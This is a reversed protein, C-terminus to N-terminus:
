PFMSRIWDILTEELQAETPKKQDYINFLKLVGLISFLRPENFSPEFELIQGVNNEEIVKLLFERGMITPIISTDDSAYMSPLLSAVLGSSESYNPIPGEKPVEFVASATYM